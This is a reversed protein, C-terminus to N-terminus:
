IEEIVRFESDSHLKYVGCQVVQLHHQAIRSRNKRAVIDRAISLVTTPSGVHLLNQRMM